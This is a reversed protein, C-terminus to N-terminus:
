PTPRCINCPRLGARRAEDFDDFERSARLGPHTDHFVNTRAVAFFKKKPASPDIPKIPKVPAPSPGTPETPVVVTQDTSRVVPVCADGGESLLRQMDRLSMKAKGGMGWDRGWSNHLLIYSADLNLHELMTPEGTFGPALVVNVGLALLCHGGSLTGSVRLWGSTDTNFMGSYWNLGLVVPGQHSLALILDSLGFAWRYESMYPEGVNNRLEMVAKAGGLVSTGSYNEGPWVDLQQARKYIALSKSYDTPVPAPTSALEHGWGFGVCAGESGQDNYTECEWVTTKYASTNVVATIPFNRSREDFHVIRDLTRTTTMGQNYWFKHM